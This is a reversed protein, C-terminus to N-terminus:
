DDNKEWIETFKEKIEAITNLKIEEIHMKAYDNQEKAKQYATAWNSPIQEAKLSFFNKITAPNEANSKLSVLFVTRFIDYVNAKLKEFVAEDTREDSLLNAGTQECLAIQEDFYSNLKAIKNKIM